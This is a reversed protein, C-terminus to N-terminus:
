TNSLALTTEMDLQEKKNWKKVIPHAEYMNMQKTRLSRRTERVSPFKGLLAAVVTEISGLQRVYAKKKPFQYDEGHSDFLFWPGSRNVDKCVLLITEPPKTIVLAVSQEGQSQAYSM